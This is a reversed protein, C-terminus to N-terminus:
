VALSPDDRFNAFDYSLSWLPSTSSCTKEFILRTSLPALQRLFYYSQTFCAYGGHWFWTKPPTHHNFLIIFLVHKFLKCDRSVVGLMYADTIALSTARNEAKSCNQLRLFRMVKCNNVTHHTFYICNIFFIHCNQHITWERKM